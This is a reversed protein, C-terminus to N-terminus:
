VWLRLDDNQKKLYRNKQSCSQFDSRPGTFTSHVFLVNRQSRGIARSASERESEKRGKKRRGGGGGGGGGGGCGLGREGGGGGGGM